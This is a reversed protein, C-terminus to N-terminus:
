GRELISKTRNLEVGERIFTMEENNIGGSAEM